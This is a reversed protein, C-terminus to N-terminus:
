KKQIKELSLVEEARESFYRYADRIGSNYYSIGFKEKFFSYISGAKILGINEDFERSFFETIENIMNKRFLEEEEKENM